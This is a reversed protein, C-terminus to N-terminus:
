EGLAEDRVGWDKGPEPLTFDSGKLGTNIKINSLDTTRVTTGDRDITEIRVPFNDKGIFVDISSFKRAFRTGARPTLTLHITGAPDDKAPAIKQVTFNKLVEARDQGIPLPFPGEGLKLPDLKQGPKLVQRTVQLKTDHNQDILKGEELKYEIRQKFEKKSLKKRDFSVRIRTDGNPLRQFWVKGMRQTDSGLADTETLVVEGTFDELNKGRADLADLAQDVAPDPVNSGVPNILPPPTQACAAGSVLSMLLLPKLLKHM